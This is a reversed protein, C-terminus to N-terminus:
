KKSNKKNIKKKIIKKKPKSKSKIKKMGAKQKTPCPIPELFINETVKKIEDYISVIKQFKNKNTTATTTTLNINIKTLNEKFKNFKDIICDFNAEIYKENYNQFKNPILQSDNIFKKDILNNILYQYQKFNSISDICFLNYKKFFNVINKYQLDNTQTSNFKTKFEKNYDSKIIGSFKNINKSNHYILNIFNILSENNNISFKNIYNILNICNLKLPYSTEKILIFQSAQLFSEIPGQLNFNLVKKHIENELLLIHNINETESDFKKNVKLLDNLLKIQLLYEEKGYLDKEDISNINNLYFIIFNVIDYKTTLLEVINIEQIFFDKLKQPINKNNQISTIFTQIEKNQETKKLKLIKEFEILLDLIKKNKNLLEQKEGELKEKNSKNETLRQLYQELTETELKKKNEKNTINKIEQVLSNYEAKEKASTEQLELLQNKLEEINGKKSPNENKLKNLENQLNQEMKKEEEILKELENKEKETNKKNAKLKLLFKEKEQKALELKRIIEELNSTDSINLGLEKIRQEIETKEKQYNSQLEQLQRSHQEIEKRQNETLGELESIKQNKQNSELKIINIKSKVNNMLEIETRKNNNINIGL